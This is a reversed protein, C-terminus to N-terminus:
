PFIRNWVYKSISEELFGVDSAIKAYLLNYSPQIALATQFCSKPFLSPYLTIPAPISAEKLDPLDPPKKVLFEVARAHFNVRQVLKEVEASTAKPPYNKYNFTPM